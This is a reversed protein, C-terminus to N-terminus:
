LTRRQLRARERQLYWIAKDIDQIADTPTGKRGARATYKVANGRNFNLQETLAIVEVGDDFLYHAPRAVPDCAEGDLGPDNPALRAQDAASLKIHTYDAM